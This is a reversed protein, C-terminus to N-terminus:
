SPDLKCVLILRSQTSSFLNQSLTSRACVPSPLNTLTLHLFCVSPCRTTWCRFDRPLRDLPKCGAGLHHAPTLSASPLAMTGLNPPKKARAVLCLFSYMYAKSSYTSTNQKPAYTGLYARQPRATSFKHSQSSKSREGRTM